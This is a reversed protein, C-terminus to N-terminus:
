ATDLSAVVTDWRFTRVQEPQSFFYEELYPEIEMQWIDALEAALGPRLFFSVGVAYHPDDIAANLRQLLRILPEVPYGTQHRQHYHRLVDYNPPLSIFAFRRRLAHDVLAISRDATNMTALLRVNAPIRLTGGGALPIAQDRYELLYMLEGFVRALNARNLEDLILVCTDRKQAAQQCFQLFRGPLMQYHLRGAEDTQPRIGQLFDEYAYAPHFQVLDIFGDGGGVLHRALHRALYTKGTGPPGYFVAQGKRHIARVWRALDAESFGTEAACTSLDYAPNPGAQGTSIAATKPQPDQLAPAEGMVAPWDGTLIETFLAQQHARRYPSASWDKFLRALYALSPVLIPKITALEGLVFNHYICIPPGDSDLRDSFPESKHHTQALGREDALAEILSVNFALLGDRNVVDLVLWNGFSLRLLRGDYQVPQSLTYRPDDTGSTGLRALVWKLLGLTWAAQEPTPFLKHLGAPIAAPYENLPVSDRNDMPEYERLTHQRSEMDYITPPVDLAVQAEATLRGTRAKGEQACVWIFSQLDVMDHPRYPALANRLLAVQQSITHYAAATHTPPLGAPLGMFQLFWDTTRPKVFMERDPHTIFLFYTPFTWKVPLAQGAAFRVFSDLRAAAPEPGYLLRQMQHAFAAKDLHPQYLLSLDGKHPTRLYLLNNDKGLRELRALLEDYAWEALLRRVEAESLLDRARAITAQKYTIEDAVFPPHDFGDWNPYRRRVLGILDDLPWHTM